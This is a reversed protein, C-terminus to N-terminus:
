EVQRVLEKSSKSIHFRASNRHLFKLSANRVFKVQNGSLGAQRWHLKLGTV